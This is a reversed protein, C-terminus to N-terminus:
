IIPDTLDLGQDLRDAVADLAQNLRAHPDNKLNYLIPALWRYRPNVDFDSGLLNSLYLYKMVAPEDIIGQIFARQIDAHIQERMRNEGFMAIQEPFQESLFALCREEFSYKQAEELCHMQEQRITIMGKR